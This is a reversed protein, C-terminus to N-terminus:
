VPMRWKSGVIEASGAKRLRKWGYGCNFCRHEDKGSKFKGSRCLPCTKRNAKNYIRTM